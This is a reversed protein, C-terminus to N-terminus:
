LIVEELKLCVSDRFPNVSEVIRQLAESEIGIGSNSIIDNPIIYVDCITFNNDLVAHEGKGNCILKAPNVLHLPM